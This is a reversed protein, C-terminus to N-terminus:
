RAYFSAENECSDRIGALFTLVLFFAAGFFFTAGFFAAGL